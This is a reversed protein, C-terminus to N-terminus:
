GHGYSLDPSYRQRRSSAPCWRGPSIPVPFIVRWQEPRRGGLEGVVPFGQSPHGILRLRDVPPPPGPARRCSASCTSPRAITCSASALRCVSPGRRITPVTLHHARLRANLSVSLLHYVVALAARRVAPGVAPHHGSGHAPPSRCHRTWTRWEDRRLSYSACLRRADRLLNM